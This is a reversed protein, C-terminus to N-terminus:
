YDDWAGDDDLFAEYAEDYDEYEDRHDEFYAEIDHDDPDSSYHNASSGSSGTRSSKLSGTWPSKGAANRIDSVSTIEGDSYHASFIMKDGRYWYMDGYTHEKHGWSQTEKTKRTPAGLKTSVAASTSMGVAPIEPKNAYELRSQTRKAKELGDVTVAYRNEFQQAKEVTWRVEDPNNSEIAAALAEECGAMILEPQLGYVIDMPLASWDKGLARCACIFAKMGDGNEMHQMAASIDEFGDYDYCDWVTQEDLGFLSGAPEAAEAPETTESPEAAESPDAAEASDAAEFISTIAEEVSRDVERRLHTWKKKMAFALLEEEKELGTKSEDNGIYPERDTFGFAENIAPRTQVEWCALKGIEALLAEKSEIKGAPEYQTVFGKEAAFANAAKGAKGLRFLAIAILIVAATVLLALAAKVKNSM